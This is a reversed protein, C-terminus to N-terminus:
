SVGHEMNDITSFNRIIGSDCDLISDISAALPNIENNGTPIMETLLVNDDNFQLLPCFNLMRIETIVHSRSNAPPHSILRM